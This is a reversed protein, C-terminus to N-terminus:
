LLRVARSITRPWQGTNLHALRWHSAHFHRDSNSILSHAFLTLRLLAPTVRLNVPPLPTSLCPAYPAYAGGIFICLNEYSILSYLGKRVVQERAQTTSSRVLLLHGFAVACNTTSLQKCKWGTVDSGTLKVTVDGTRQSPIPFVFM